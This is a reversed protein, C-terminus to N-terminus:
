WLGPLLRYRVREAYEPYGPLETRLMKDELATRIVFLFAIMGAPVLAWLSGLLLAIGPMLVMIAIYMPHRVHQYPGSQVVSHGRDNQIRARASLFANTRMCWFIVNGALLFAIGGLAQWIWPMHSWRFRADLGALVFLSILLFNYIRIIIKDWSKVNAATKSREDLLEPANRTGWALVFALFLLFVAVFAWAGPWNIRGASGFLVLAFLFTGLVLRFIRQVLKTKGSKGATPAQTAATGSEAEQNM